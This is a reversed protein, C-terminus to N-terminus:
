EDEDNNNDDENGQNYPLSFDSLKNILFSIHERDGQKLEGKTRLTLYFQSDDIPFNYENLVCIIQDIELKGFNDVDVKRIAGVKTVWNMYVQIQCFLPEGVWTDLEDKLKPNLRLQHKMQNSLALHVREKSQRAESSQVLRGGSAILTKNLSLPKNDIDFFM